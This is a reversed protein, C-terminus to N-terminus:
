EGGDKEAAAAIAALRKKRGMLLATSVACLGLLGLGIYLLENQSDNEVDVASFIITGRDANFSLYSGYRSTETRVWRDDELVYIEVQHGRENLEPPLYRVSFQQGKELGDLKLVWKELASGNEVQPDEGNFPNLSLRSRNDFDGELLVISLPSGERTIDAALAGQRPTYVAEVVQSRTLGRIPFQGWSGTYGEKEPVEPVDDESISGGYKFELEKVVTGDAIFSLKLVRFRAPIQELELLQQYTIPMAKGEYSIGDVGGLSDHVFINDMISEATDVDAWGAVAGGCAIVDRLGVMTGCGTIITGYGAIGGVYETGSLDCMAYSDRVVHNSKGVIGGVYSGDSSVSGYSQCRIIVGMETLGTIGGVCDKRGTVVGRNENEASVCKTEYTNSVIGEIGITSIVRSELDFEYEVGMDGIVGGVNTDGDVPAFNRNASVRGEPDDDPLEDSIDELIQRTAAGNLANSLLMLVRSFQNNMNRLDVALIGTGSGVIGALTNMGDGMGNIDDSLGNVNMNDTKIKTKDDVINLGKRLDDDTLGGGNGSINGGSGGSINGGSGGSINGGSGGSINGGAGIKGGASDASTDVDSISSQVEDSMLGLDGSAQNMYTNLLKLEEAMSVSDKLLMFPEMQGVVGGVDKRGFVSGYNECSNLYGSQRGAVGGVNYGYHPYGVAGRNTCRLLVGRSFGAIGGSDSVVDEDEASTLNAPSVESVSLDSLALASESISTNVQAENECSAVSGSNYGVIGGTFRKGDVSGEVWCNLIVGDSEGALGGVYNLGSVSGCFSCNDILGHNTGALGGVQCRGTKPSITGEVRLDRVEGTEGIYRFLGQHSGDTVLSLGSITHGRGEFKGVFIPIPYFDTESLDLDARLIVKLGRSYSDVTCDRALAQLQEVNHIHLIREQVTEEKQDTEEKKDSEEQAFARPACLSVLLATLMLLALIRKNKM